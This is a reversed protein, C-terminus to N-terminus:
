GLNKEDKWRLVYQNHCRTREEQTAEFNIDVTNLYDVFSAASAPGNMYRNPRDINPNMKGDRRTTFGRKKVNRTADKAKWHHTKWDELGHRVGRNGQQVVHLPDAIIDIRNKIRETEEPSPMLCKGCVCHVAGGKSHRQCTPCQTARVTEGFEYLEVNGMETVARTSAESFVNSEENWTKKSPTPVLDM